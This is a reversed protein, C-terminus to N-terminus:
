RKSAAKSKKKTAAKKTRTKPGTIKPRAAAKTKNRGRALKAAGAVALGALAAIALGRAM